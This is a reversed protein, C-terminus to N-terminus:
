RARFSQNSHIGDFVTVRRRDTRWRLRVCHTGVGSPITRQRCDICTSRCRRSKHYPPCSRPDVYDSEHRSLAPEGLDARLTALWRTIQISRIRRPAVSRTCTVFRTGRPENLQFDHWSKPINKRSMSGTSRTSCSLDIARPLSSPNGPTGHRSRSWPLSRKLLSSKPGFGSGTAAWSSM